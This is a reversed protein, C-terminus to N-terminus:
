VNALHINKHL